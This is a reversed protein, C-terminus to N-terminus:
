PQASKQRICSPELLPSPLVDSAAALADNLYGQRDNPVRKRAQRLVEEGIARAASVIDKDPSKSIPQLHLIDERIGQGFRNTFLREQKQVASFGAVETALTAVIEGNFFPTMHVNSERGLVLVALCNAKGVRRMECLTQAMDICYQVVTLFRNQRFKRNAGIESRAVILPQWGLSETSTRYNHHYNFVNIYPPSSLIFDVSAAPLGTRRADGLIAKVPKKSFPLALITERIARWRPRVAESQYDGDSLIVLAELLATVWRDDACRATEPLPRGERPPSRNLLPLDSGFLRDLLRDVKDLAVERDHDALLCFEYLRAISYAAPNAETGLAAHGRRAGEVLVTGSGMFPDFVTSGPESYAQLIAEIFQPSFQGRWAFLNSRTKTRVDLTTQALPTAFRRRQGHEPTPSTATAATPYPMLPAV